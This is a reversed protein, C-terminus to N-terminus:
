NAVISGGFWAVGPISPFPPEDEFLAGSEFDLVSAGADTARFTLYVLPESGVVDTGDPGTRSAGVSVRGPTGSDTLYLVESGTGLATGASWGVFVVLDPDFSLEFDSGYVGSVDTVDVRLTVTDASSGEEALTVSDAQPEAEPTFSASVTPVIPASGGGSCGVIVCLVAVLGLVGGCMRLRGEFM